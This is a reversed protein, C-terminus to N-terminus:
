ILDIFNKRFKMHVCCGFVFLLITFCWFYITYVNHVTFPIGYLISERYGDIIYGFPNLRLIFKLTPHLKDSPVWVIPTIYFLLRVVSSLINQFDKFLVDIASAFLGFGSLFVFSCVVYYLLQFVYISISYGSLIIIAFVVLMAWFHAILGSLVSKIPVMAMPFSIRKLIGGYNRISTASTMLVENIFFWPMIGVIMWIIYPYGERPAGGQLGIAFVFWYVFIQLAPNFFNWLFGFVTGSNQIKLEYSALVFLRHRNLFNESIVTKVANWM